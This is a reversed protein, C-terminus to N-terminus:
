FEHVGAHELELESFLRLSDTFDHSFFLVFRHFDIENGSDLNNYHLEGYGGIHTKSNGSTATHAPQVSAKDLMEGTAEVKQENSKIRAKLGDIERQQKLILDKLEELTVKGQDANAVSTVSLMVIISLLRVLSM